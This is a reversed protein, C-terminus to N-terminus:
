DMKVVKKFFNDGTELDYIRFLYNGDAFASLNVEELNNGEIVLQGTANMVLVHYDSSNSTEIKVLSSTPNPYLSFTTTQLETTSVIGDCNDDINNGAIEIAGPNVDANQDDCEEYFYYGDQDEDLFEVFTNKITNTIIPQNLDFYIYGTNLIEDLEEIEEHANISFSVYGQSAAENTTSDPLFINEFYFILVGERDLEMTYDHSANVSRLSEYDLLPSLTDIITVNHATDNGTNQFRIKYNLQEDFQTYNSNSSEERAPSVQKDNPDYACRFVQSQNLEDVVEYSGNNLMYTTFSYELTDGVFTENARKIIVDPVFHMGAELNDFLFTYVGSLSDYAADIQLITDRPDFKVEIKGAVTDCGINQINVWSRSTSNCLARNITFDFLIGRREEELFIMAVDAKFKSPFGITPDVETV